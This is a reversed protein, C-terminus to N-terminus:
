LFRFFILGAPSRLQAARSHAIEHWILVLGLWFMDFCTWFLDFSDCDPGNFVGFVAGNFLVAV